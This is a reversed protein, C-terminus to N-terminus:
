VTAAHELLTELRQLSTAGAGPISRAGVRRAGELATWHSIYPGFSFACFVVDGPGVGAGRYVHGWCRMWTEWDDDSDLWFLPQGSTGSTRHVYRYSELPETPVTGYPPAEQQAALLEAKSTLPLRALDSLSAVASPDIGARSLKQRYFRSRSLGAMLRRLRREQHQRLSDPELTELQRDFFSM